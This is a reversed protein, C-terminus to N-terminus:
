QQVQITGGVIRLNVTASAGAGPVPPNSPPAVAPPSDQTTGNLLGQLKMSSVISQVILKIQDEGPVGQIQGAAAATQLNVLVANVVDAFKVPGTGPGSAAEAQPAHKHVLGAILNIISPAIGAILPIFAAM